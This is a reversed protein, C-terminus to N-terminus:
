KNKCGGNTRTQKNLDLYSLIIIIIITIILLWPPFLQDCIVILWVCPMTALQLQHCTLKNRSILPLVLPLLLILGSAAAHRSSPSRSDMAPKKEFIKSSAFKFLKGWLRINHINTHRGVIWSPLPLIYNIETRHNAYPINNKADMRENTRLDLWTLGLWDTSLKQMTTTPNTLCGNPYTHLRPPWDLFDSTWLNWGCRGHLRCIILSITKWEAHTFLISYHSPRITQVCWVTDRRHHLGWLRFLNWNLNNKSTRSPSRHTDDNTCNRYM